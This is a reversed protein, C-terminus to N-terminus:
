HRTAPAHMALLTLKDAAQHLQPPLERTGNDPTLLWEDWLWAAEALSLHGELVPQLLEEPLEQHTLSISM